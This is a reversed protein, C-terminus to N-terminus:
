DMLQFREADTVLRATPDAGVLMGYSAAIDSAFANYTSITPRALSSRSTQGTHPLMGAARLRGLARDVRQSLEGAAKRTFTLGLVEEPSVRGAAVHYAIRNAMTATKGSGAGATVLIAADQSEIVERQEPTPMRDGALRRMVREYTAESM